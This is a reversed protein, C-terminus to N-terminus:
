KQRQQNLLQDGVCEIIRNFDFENPSKNFDEVIKYNDENYFYQMQYSLLQADTVNIAEDMLRGSM